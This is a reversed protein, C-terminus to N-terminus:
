VTTWQTLFYKAKLPAQIDVEMNQVPKQKDRDQALLIWDVDGFNRLIWRLIIRGCVGLDELHDELIKYANIMEGMYAVHRVKTM